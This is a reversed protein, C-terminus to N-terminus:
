SRLLHRNWPAQTQLKFITIGTIGLIDKCKPFCFGEKKGNKALTRFHSSDFFVRGPWSDDYISACLCPLATFLLCSMAVFSICSFEELSNIMSTGIWMLMWMKLAMALKDALWANAPLVFDIVKDQHASLLNRTSCEWTSTLLAELHSIKVALPIGICIHDTIASTAEALRLFTCLKPDDCTRTDGRSRRHM